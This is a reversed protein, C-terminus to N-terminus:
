SLLADLRPDGGRYARRLYVYARSEDMLEVAFEFASDPLVWLPLRKSANHHALHCDFDMPVINRRDAVLKHVPPPKELRRAALVSRDRERVVERIKAQTVVHHGHRGRKGCGCICRGKM